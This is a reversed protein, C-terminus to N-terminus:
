STKFRNALKSSKFFSFIALTLGYLGSFILLFELWTMNKTIIGYVMLVMIFTTTIIVGIRGIKLEGLKTTLLGVESQIEEQNKQHKHLAMEITTKLEDQNFPKIIFGYPSTEGARELTKDDSYSTLYVIPINLEEISKSVTIGDLSGKLMIDMLILDPNLERAKEIAEYGTSVTGIVNYDLEDLKNAIDMTTINEDEVLLIHPKLRSSPNNINKSKITENKNIIDQKFKEVRAIDLQHKNLAMEVTTILEKELYPKVIYGYVPMQTAKKLTNNDNAGTLYVVPINLTIIKKAAEIGNMKGKLTIDMLVLDPRIKAAEIVAEEGRSVISSIEYGINELIRKLDLAIMGEDEVLLIKKASM